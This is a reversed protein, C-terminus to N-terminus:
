RSGPRRTVWLVGLWLIGLLLMEVTREFQDAYVLTFAGAPARFGIAWGFATSAPASGDSTRLTWAAATQDAVYGFGGSSSGTWVNGSAEVPQTQVEGLAAVDLMSGARAARAYSADQTVFAPPLARANRYIM